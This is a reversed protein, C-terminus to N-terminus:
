LETITFTYNLRIATLAKNMVKFLFNSGSPLLYGIESETSFGTIANREGGFLIGRSILQGENTIIPDHTSINQTSNTSIFNYNIFDHIIGQDSFTCNYFVDIEVDGEGQISGKFELDTINQLLLYKIGGNPITNNEDWYY